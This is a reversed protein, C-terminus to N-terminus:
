NTELGETYSRLDNELNMGQVNEYKPQPDFNPDILHSSNFLYINSQQEGAKKETKTIYAIRVLHNLRTRIQGRQSKKLGFKEYEMESFM